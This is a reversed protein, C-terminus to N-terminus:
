GNGSGAKAGEEEFRSHSIGEWIADSIARVEAYAKSKTVTSLGISECWVLFAERLADAGAKTRGQKLMAEGSLGGLTCLFVLYASEEITAMDGDVLRLWVFQRGISFPELRKGQFFHAAAFANEIDEQRLEEIFSESHEDKM